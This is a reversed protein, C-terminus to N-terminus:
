VLGQSAYLMMHSIWVSSLLEPGAAWGKLGVGGGGRDWGGVVGGGGLYLLLDWCATGLMQLLLLLASGVSCLDGGWHWWIHPQQPTLFM